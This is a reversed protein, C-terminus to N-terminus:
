GRGRAAARAPMRDEMEDITKPWDERLLRALGRDSLLRGGTQCRPCYDTETDDSYAIRQM